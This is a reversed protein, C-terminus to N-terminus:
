YEKVETAAYFSGNIRRATFLQYTGDAFLYGYSWGQAWRLKGTKANCYDMDRICLCPNSRAEAPELSAIAATEATHVHGFICNRYCRAHMNAAGIGAHYGHLVNLKGLDYIGLASDYPLMKARHKRMLSEVRKIGDRAYDRVLGSCNSAFSWLREDHNGRLFVNTKGGTFFRSVFNSGAQWDDELSGAKEEDSAGKRLNRFDWNDGAHIRITPKFDEIFSFLAEVSEDDQMDGHNDSVIVFRQPSM